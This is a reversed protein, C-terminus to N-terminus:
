FAEKLQPDEALDVPSASSFFKSITELQTKIDLTEQWSKPSMGFSCNSAAVSSIVHRQTM